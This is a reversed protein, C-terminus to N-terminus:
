IMGTKKIKRLTAEEMNIDYDNRLKASLQRLALSPYTKMVEIVTQLEESKTVIVEEKPRKSNAPPSYVFKEFINAQVLPASASATVQMVAAGTVTRQPGASTQQIPGIEIQGAHHADHCAQCVVVLNRMDDRASGDVFRLGSAESRQRIHHVELDRVIEHRCIECCRRTVASNWASVPAEEESVTGLLRRRYTHAKELFAMPLHMARAVELGYLTSGPGPKLSRDYILRDRAADYIVRLHWVALSISEPPPLVDLLGHLHTAFFYRAHREALWDIGAAVIAKASQSETGNCLEDGLIMSGKDATDLFERMESMEVAFSSMGAWLDDRNIIRTYLATFPSISCESAPVFCGCQALHIAIGIAKMLSSKGSANMGYILWGRNDGNFEVNHKVYETRSLISEILPHRLNNASFVAGGDVAPEVLTPCVYGRAASEIAICRAIDCREIWAELQDWTSAAAATLRNCIDPLVSEVGRKMAARLRNVRDNLNSLWPTEVWSVSKLSRLKAERFAPVLAASGGQKFARDLEKAAVPTAKIGYPVAEQPEIRVANSDATVAAFSKCRTCFDAASTAAEALNEECKHLEAYHSVSTQLFTIDDTARCAKDVSFEAEFFETRWKQLSEILGTPPVLSAPLFAPLSEAALYSQHLCYIDSAELQSCTLRRHLRPLDYIERLRRFVERANDETLEQMEKIENYAAALLNSDTLPTLLRRKIARRGMPTVCSQFLGLVSDQIRPAIIQLQTLANNGLIMHAAAVYSRNMHLKQFTSPNMQKIFLLLQTLAAEEAASEATENDMLALWKRTPLLSQINYVERFFEERAHPQTLSGLSPLHRIHIASRPYNFQRRFYEESPMYLVDGAWYVIIETTGQVHLFHALEDCKWTDIRGYTQGATTVTIGTSLDFSAAGYVPADTGAAGAAAAPSFYVGSISRTDGAENNEFHTGPSLIRAVKRQIKKGIKEGAQDVVIVTWGADTLRGAWKHLSDIPLGWFMGDHGTPVDDKRVTLRINLLDSIERANCRAQGTEQNVLDYIEYFGGVMMLIATNPGYIPRYQKYFQEYDAYM